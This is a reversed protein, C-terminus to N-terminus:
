VYPTTPLTLHTYSVPESAEKQKQKESGHLTETTEPQCGKGGYQPMCAAAVPFNHASHAATTGPKHHLTSKDQQALEGQSPQAPADRSAGVAAGATVQPQASPKDSSPALALQSHAQALSRKLSEQMVASPKSASPKPPPPAAATAQGPPDLPLSPADPFMPSVVAPSLRGLCCEAYTDASLSVVRSAEEMM